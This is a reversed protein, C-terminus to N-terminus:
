LLAVNKRHIDVVLPIQQVDHFKLLLQNMGQDLKEDMEEQYLPFVNWFYITQNETISLTSFEASVCVPQTICMCCLKTNEAFPEAPDGNPITHGEALFTSFEHPLRALLKLWKIPWFLSPDALSTQDMPWDKPLHMMLEAYQYQIANAPVTMPMDSMGATILTHYPRQESPKVWFIDIHVLDSALEHLVKEIPGMHAEIHNKIKEEHKSQGFVPTFDRTRKAHRYIPAGSKSTEPSDSM